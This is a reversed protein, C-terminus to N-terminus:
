RSWAVLQSVSVAFHLTCRERPLTPGVWWSGLHLPWLLRMQTWPCVSRRHHMWITISL